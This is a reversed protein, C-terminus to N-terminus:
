FFFFVSNFEGESDYKGGVLKIAGDKKKLKRVDKGIRRSRTGKRLRLGDVITVILMLLITINIISLKLTKNKEM